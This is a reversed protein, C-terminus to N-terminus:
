TSYGRTDFSPKFIVLYPAVASPFFCPLSRSSSEHMHYKLHASGDVLACFKGRRKFRVDVLPLFWNPTSFLMSLRLSRLGIFGNVHQTRPGFALKLVLLFM